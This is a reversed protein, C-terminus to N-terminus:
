TRKATFTLKGTTCTAPTGWTTVVDLQAWGKATGNRKVKMFLRSTGALDGNAFFSEAKWNLKGNKPIKAQYPLALFDEYDPQYGTGDPCDVLLKLDTKGTLCYGRSQKGGKLRCLDKQVTFDFAVAGTAKYPGTRPGTQKAAAPTVGVAVITLSAVALTKLAPMRVGNRM